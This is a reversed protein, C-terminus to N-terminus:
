ETEWLGDKGIRLKLVTRYTMVKKASKKLYETFYTEKTGKIYLNDYSKPIQSKHIEAKKTAHTIVLGTVDESDAYKCGSLVMLKTNDRNVTLYYAGDETNLSLNGIDLTNQYYSIRFRKEELWASFAEDKCYDPLYVTDVSLYCSANKFRKEAEDNYEVMVYNDIHTFGSNLVTSSCNGVGYLSILTNERGDSYLAVHNNSSDWLLLMENANLSAKYGVICGSVILIVACLSAVACKIAKNARLALGGVIAVIIPILILKIYPVSSSFTAFSLSAMFDSIGKILTYLFEPIWAMFTAAPFISCVAIAIVASAMIPVTIFEVALNSLPSVVSVFDFSFVLIPLSFLTATLTVKVPSLVSRLFTAWKSLRVEIHETESLILIGLTCMFSLQLSTSAIAYPSFLCLAALTGCLVYCPDIARDFVNAAFLACCMICARIVPASAGVLLTYFIALAICIVSGLKKRGFLTMWISYFSFVLISFHQGSIAIIHSLGSRAFSGNINSNIGSRDGVLLASYFNGSESDFTNCIKSAINVRLRILAYKIGTAEYDDSIEAIGDLSYSIGNGKASFSTESLYGVLKLVTCPKYYYDTYFYANYGEFETEGMLELTLRYGGDTAVVENVAGYVTYETDNDPKPPSFVATHLNCYVFGIGIAIVSVTLVFRTYRVPRIFMIIGWCLSIILATVWFNLFLGAAIGAALALCVTAAPRYELM